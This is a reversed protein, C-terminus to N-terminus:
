PPQVGREAGMRRALLPLTLQEFVAQSHRPVVTMRPQAAAPLLDVGDDSCVAFYREPDLLLLRRGIERM